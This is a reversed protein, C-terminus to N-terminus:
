FVGCHVYRMMVRNHSSGLVISGIMGAQVEDKMLKKCGSYGRWAQGYIELGALEITDAATLVYGSSGAREIEKLM